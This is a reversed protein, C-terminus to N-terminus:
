RSFHAQKFKSRTNKIILIFFFTFKKWLYGNPLNPKLTLCPSTHKYSRMKGDIKKKIDLIPSGM